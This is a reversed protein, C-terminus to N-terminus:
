FLGNYLFLLVATLGDHEPTFGLLQSVPKPTERTTFRTLFVTKVVKELFVGIKKCDKKCDKKFRWDKKSIAIKESFDADKRLFRSWLTTFFLTLASLQDRNRPKTPKERRVLM